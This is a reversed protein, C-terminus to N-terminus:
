SGFGLSGNFSADVRFAKYAPDQLKREVMSYFEESGFQMHINGREWEENLWKELIVNPVSAVHRGWDSRQEITRLAKNHELIPEVDQVREITIEKGGPHYLTQVTM